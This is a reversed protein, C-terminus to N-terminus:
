AWDANLLRSAMTLTSCASTAVLRPALRVGLWLARCFYKQICVAGTSMCVFWRMSQVIRETRLSCLFLLLKRRLQFNCCFMETEAARFRIIELMWGASVSYIDCPPSWVCCHSSVSAENPSRFHSSVPIPISGGGGGGDGSGGGVSILASGACRSPPM